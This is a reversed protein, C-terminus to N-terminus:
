LTRRPVVMNSEQWKTMYTHDLAWTLHKQFASHLSDAWVKRKVGISWDLQKHGSSGNCCAFDALLIAQTKQKRKKHHDPFITVGCARLVMIMMKKIRSFQPGKYGFGLDM